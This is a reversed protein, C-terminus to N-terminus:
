VLDFKKTFLSCNQFRNRKRGKYFFNFFDSFPVRYAIAVGFKSVSLVITAAYDRNNTSVLFLFCDNTFFIPSLSPVGRCTVIGQLEGRRKRVLFSLLLDEVCVFFLYTSLPDGNILFSCVGHDCGTM